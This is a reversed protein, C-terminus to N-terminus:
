IEVYEKVGQLDEEFGENEDEEEGGVNTVGTQEGSTEVQVNSQERTEDGTTDAVSRESGAIEFAGMRDGNKRGAIVDNQSATVGGNAALKDDKANQTHPLIQNAAAKAENEDAPDYHDYEDVEVGNIPKSQDNGMPKMEVQENEAAGKEV